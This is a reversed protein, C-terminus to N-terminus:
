EVHRVRPKAQQSVPNPDPAHLFPELALSPVLVHHTRHVIPDGSEVLARGVPGGGSWCNSNWHSHPFVSPHSPRRSIVRASVLANTVLPITKADHGTVLGILDLVDDLLVLPEHDDVLAVLDLLEHFLM